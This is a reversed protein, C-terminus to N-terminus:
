EKATVNLTNLFDLIGTQVNQAFTKAAAIEADLPIVICANNVNCNGAEIAQIEATLDDSDYFSLSRLKVEVNEGSAFRLLQITLVYDGYVEYELDDLDDDCDAREQQVEVDNDIKVIKCLLYSNEPERYVGTILHFDEFNSASIFVFNQLLLAKLADDFLRPNKEVRRSWLEPTEENSM